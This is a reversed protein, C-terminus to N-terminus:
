EKFEGIINQRMIDEFKGLKSQNSLVWITKVLAASVSCGSIAIAGKVPVVSQYNYVVTPLKWENIKQQKGDGLSQFPLAKIFIGKYGVLDEKDFDWNTGPLDELVLVKASMNSYTETKKSPYKLGSRLNIGFDIKAWYKGDISVFNNAEDLYDYSAKAAPILRAGSIIAPAPLPESAIQIANILNTRLGLGGHKAKLKTLIEKKDVFSTGSVQSSTFIITKKINQLLFNVAVSTNILQDIKSVVVFGDATKEKAMIEKAIKQWVDPGIIQDERAIVIPEIDALISLEPMLELWHEIDKKSNISFVQGQKDLICTGGALFLFIKKKQKAM